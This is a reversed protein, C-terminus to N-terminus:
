LLTLFKYKEKTQKFYDDYGVLTENYIHFRCILCKFLLKVMCNKKKINLKM